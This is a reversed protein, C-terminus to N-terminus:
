GLHIEKSLSVKPVSFADKHSFTRGLIDYAAPGPSNDLGNFTQNRKEKSFSTSVRKEPRPALTKYHALNYTAPGPVLHRPTYFRM